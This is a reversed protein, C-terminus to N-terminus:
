DEFEEVEAEGKVGSLRWKGTLKQTPYINAYVGLLTQTKKTYGTVTNPITKTFGPTVDKLKSSSIWSGSEKLVKAPDYFAITYSGDSEATVNIAVKLEKTASDWTCAAAPLNGTRNGTVSDQGNKIGPLAVIEYECPETCALFKAADGDVTSKFIKANEGTVGFNKGQLDTINRYASIYYIPDGAVTVSVLTFDVTNKEYKNPGEGITDGKEHYIVNFAYGMVGHATTTDIDTQTIVARSGYHKTKLPLLSRCNGGNENTYEVTANSATGKIYNDVPLTDSDAEDDDEENTLFDNAAGACSYFSFIAAGLMLGCLLIKVKKM